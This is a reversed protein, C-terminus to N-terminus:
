CFLVRNRFYLKKKYALIIGIKKITTINYSTEERTERIIASEDNEFDEVAGGPLGLIRKGNYLEEVCILTQSDIFVVARVKKRVPLSEIENKTFNYPNLIGLIRSQM